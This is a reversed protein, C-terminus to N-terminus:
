EQFTWKAGSLEACHIPQESTLFGLWAYSPISGKITRAAASPPLCGGAAWGSIVGSGEGTEPAMLFDSGQSPGYIRLTAREPNQGRGPLLCKRHRHSAVQASTSSLASAEKCTRPGGRQLIGDQVVAPCHWGHAPHSHARM